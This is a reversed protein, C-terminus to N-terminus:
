AAPRGAAADPQKGCLRGAIGGFKAKAARRRSAARAAEGASRGELRRSGSWRKERSTALWRRPRSPAQYVNAASGQGRAPFCPPPYGWSGGGSRSSHSHGKCSLHSSGASSGASNAAPRRPSPPPPLPLLFPNVQCHLGSVTRFTPGPGRVVSCLRSDSGGGCAGKRFSAKCGSASLHPSQGQIRQGSCVGSVRRLFALGQSNYLSRPFHCNRREERFIFQLCTPILHWILLM